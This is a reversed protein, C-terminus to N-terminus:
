SYMMDDKTDASAMKKGKVFADSALAELATMYEQRIAELAAEEQVADSYVVKVVHVIKDFLHKAEDESPVVSHVVKVKM